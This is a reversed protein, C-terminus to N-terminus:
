LINWRETGFTEIDIKMLALNAVKDVYCKHLTIDFRKFSFLSIYSLHSRYKCAYINKNPPQM